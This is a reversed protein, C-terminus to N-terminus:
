LSIDLVVIVRVQNSMLRLLTCIRDAKLLMALAPAGDKKQIQPVAFPIGIRGSKTCRPWLNTIITLYPVSYM